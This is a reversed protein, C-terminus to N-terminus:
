QLADQAVRAIFKHCATDFNNQVLLPFFSTTREKFLANVRAHKPASRTQLSLVYWDHGGAVPPPLVEGPGIKVPVCACSRVRACARITM